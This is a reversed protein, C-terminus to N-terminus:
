RRSLISMQSKDDYFGTKRNGQDSIVERIEGSKFARSGTRSPCPQADAAASSTLYVSGVARSSFNSTQTATHGHQRGLRGQTDNMGQAKHVPGDSASLAARAGLLEPSTESARPRWVRDGRPLGPVTREGVQRRGQPHVGLIATPLLTLLQPYPQKSSPGLCMRCLWRRFSFPQLRQSATSSCRM